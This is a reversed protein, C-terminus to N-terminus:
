VLCDLGEKREVPRWCDLVERCANGAVQWRAGRYLNWAILCLQAPPGLWRDVIWLVDGADTLVRCSYVQGNWWATYAQLFNEASPRLHCLSLWEPLDGRYVLVGDALSVGPFHNQVLDFLVWVSEPARGFKKVFLMRRSYEPWEDLWDALTLTGGASELPFLEWERGLVDEPSCCVTNLELVLESQM